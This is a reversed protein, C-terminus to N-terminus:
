SARRRPAFTTPSRRALFISQIPNPEDVKESVPRQELSLDVAFVFGGIRLRDGQKLTAQAVPEDNVYIGNLSNLDTIVWSGNEFVFRCHRRSIDPLPLRVDVESHRGVIIDPHTLEIVTGTPQLVLRLPQFDPPLPTVHQAPRHPGQLPLGSAGAHLPEDM